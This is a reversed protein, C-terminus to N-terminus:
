LPVSVSRFSQDSVTLSAPAGAQCGVAPSVTVGSKDPVILSLAPGAPRRRADAPEPGTAWHTEGSELEVTDIQPKSSDLWDGDPVVTAQPVCCGAAAVHVVDSTDDPSRHIPM